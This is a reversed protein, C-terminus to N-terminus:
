EPAQLKTVARSCISVTVTLLSTLAVRMTVWSGEQTLVTLFIKNQDWKYGSHISNFCIYSAFVWHLMNTFVCLPVCTHWTDKFKFHLHYLLLTSWVWRPWPSVASAVVWGLLSPIPPYTPLHPPWQVGPPQVVDCVPSPFLFLFFHMSWSLSLLPCCPYFMLASPFMFTSLIFAAVSSLLSLCPFHSAPFWLKM